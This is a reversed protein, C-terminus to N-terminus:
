PSKEQPLRRVLLASAPVELCPGMREWFALSKPDRIRFFWASFDLRAALVSSDFRGRGSPLAGLSSAQLIHRPLRNYPDVNCHNHFPNVEKGNESAEGM